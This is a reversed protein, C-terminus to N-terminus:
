DDCLRELNISLPFVWISNKGESDIAIFLLSLATKTFISFIIQVWTPISQSYKLANM